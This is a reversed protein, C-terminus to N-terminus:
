AGQVLLAPFLGNLVALLTGVLGGLAGVVSEGCPTMDAVLTNVDGCGVLGYTADGVTVSAFLSLMGDTLALIRAIINGLIM